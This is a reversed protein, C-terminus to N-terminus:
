RSTAPAAIWRPRRPSAPRRRHRGRGLLTRWRGRAAPHKVHFMGGSGPGGGFRLRDTAQLVPRSGGRGSTERSVSVSNDPGPRRALTSERAREPSNSRANQSSVPTRPGRRVITERSVHRAMGAVASDLRRSGRKRNFTERSVVDRCRIAGVLCASTCPPLEAPVGRIDVAGAHVVGLSRQKVHFL